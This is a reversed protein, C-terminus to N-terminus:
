GFAVVVSAALYQPYMNSSPRNQNSSNGQKHGKITLHFDTDTSPINTGRPVGEVIIQRVPEYFLRTSIGFENGVGFPVVCKSMCFLLGHL